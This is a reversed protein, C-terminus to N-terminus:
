LENETVGVAIGEDGVSGRPLNASHRLTTLVKIRELFGMGYGRARTNNTTKKRSAKARHKQQALQPDPDFIV